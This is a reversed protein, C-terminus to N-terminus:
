ESRGIDGWKAAHSRLKQQARAAYQRIMADKSCHLGELSELFGLELLAQVCEIHACLNGLSFLAIQASASGTGPSGAGSNSDALSAVMAHRLVLELLAPLAGASIVEQCLASSNRLLNGIAGAANARTRDEEDALLGVLAPVAPRLLDYLSANHFGANGIAFCAFKRTAQDPDLCRDVLLPILRHARLAPYLAGSHRCLNGLLNCSRARVAADTHALLAPLAPVVGAPELLGHHPSGAPARSLQSYVTLACLLGPTPNSASLLRFNPVFTSV